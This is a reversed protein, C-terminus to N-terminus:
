RKKSAAEARVTRTAELASAGSERLEAYRRVQEPTPPTTRGIEDPNTKRSFLGM